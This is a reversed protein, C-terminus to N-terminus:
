AQGRGSQPNSFQDFLPPERPNGDLTPRLGGVEGGLATERATRRCSAM